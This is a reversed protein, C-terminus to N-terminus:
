KNSEFHIRALVPVNFEKEIEIQSKITTDFMSSIIVYFLAVAFGIGTFTVVDKIKNINSPENNVDALDVIHVNDINYLTNVEKTFVKAIENAIDAALKPESNTVSIQLVETNKVANVLINNKM